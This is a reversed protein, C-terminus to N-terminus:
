CGYDAVKEFVSSTRDVETLIISSYGNIITLLNNFDHAVGGALMGIAEMKQSQQLQAELAKQETIDKKVALYNTVEGKENFIPALTAKEWFFKGDRTKNHFEGEWVKGRKITEWMEVYEESSTHGSKLINPNQGRVEDITYGTIQTFKPNVYEIRGDLGTIVISAPSQEVAQSLRNVEAEAMKWETIDRLLALMYPKGDVTIVSGRADVNIQTGDKRLDVTEGSCTGTQKVLEMFEAFVHHYDAHILQTSHM